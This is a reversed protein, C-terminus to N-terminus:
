MRGTKKQTTVGVPNCSTVIWLAASKVSVAMFVEFMMILYGVQIIWEIERVFTM